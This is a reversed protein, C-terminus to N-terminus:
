GGRVAAGSETKALRSTSPRCPATLVSAASDLLGAVFLEASGLHHLGGAHRRAELDALAHALFGTFHWWRQAVLPEPLTDRLMRCARERLVALGLAGPRSELDSLTLTAVDRHVTYAAQVCFRLYWSGSPADDLLEALPRVFAEAIAYPDDGRGERDFADILAMRRVDIPVQRHKFIADVLGQKSGFHYQVANDNRQGADAAIKRMSVANIGHEAFLREATAILYLRTTASQSDM